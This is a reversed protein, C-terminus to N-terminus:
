NSNACKAVISLIHLQLEKLHLGTAPHLNFQTVKLQVFYSENHSYLQILGRPNKAAEQDVNRPVEHHKTKAAINNETTMTSLYLLRFRDNTM